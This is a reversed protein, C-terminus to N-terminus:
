WSAEAAHRITPSTCTRIVERFQSGSGGAVPAAGNVPFSSSPPPGGISAAPAAGNVPPFAPDNRVTQNPLPAPFAGQALALGGQVSLAALTLPVILRRIMLAKMEPLTRRGVFAGFGM